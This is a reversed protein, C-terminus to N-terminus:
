VSCNLVISMLLVVCLWKRHLLTSYLFYLVDSAVPMADTFIAAHAIFNMRERQMVAVHIVVIVM